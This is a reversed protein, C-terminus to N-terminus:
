AKVESRARVAMNQVLGANTVLETMVLQFVRYDVDGASSFMEDQFTDHTSYLENSLLEAAATLKRIDM